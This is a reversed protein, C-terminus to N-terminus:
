DFATPRALPGLRVRVRPLWPQSDPRWDVSPRGSRLRRRLSGGSPPCPPGTVRFARPPQALLDLAAGGHGPPATRSPSCPSTRRTSSPRRCRPRSNGSRTEDSILPSALPAPFTVLLRRRFPFAARFNTRPDPTTPLIISTKGRMEFKLQLKAKHNKPIAFGTIRICKATGDAPLSPSYGGSTNCNSGNQLWADHSKKLM